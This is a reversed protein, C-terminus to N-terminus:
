LELGSMIEDVYDTNDEETCTEGVESIHQRLIKNIDIIESLEKHLSNNYKDLDVSNDEIGMQSLVKRRANEDTVKMLYTIQKVLKNQSNQLQAIKDTIKLIDTKMSINEAKLSENERTLRGNQSLLKDVTERTEIIMKKKTVDPQELFTNINSARLLLNTNISVILNRSKNIEEIKLTCLKPREIVKGTKKDKERISRTFHYDRVDELGEINSRCWNALETAKIKKKEIESFRIVADLLLDETYKQTKAM